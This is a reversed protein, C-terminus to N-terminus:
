VWEVYVAEDNPWPSPLEALISTDPIDKGTLSSAANAIARAARKGAIPSKVNIAQLAKVLESHNDPQAQIFENLVSVVREKELTICKM